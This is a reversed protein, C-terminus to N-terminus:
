IAVDVFIGAVDVSFGPDAVEVVVEVIAELTM